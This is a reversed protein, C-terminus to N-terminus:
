SICAVLITTGFWGGYVRVARTLRGMGEEDEGYHCTVRFTMDQTLEFSRKAVDMDCPLSPDRAFKETIKDFPYTITNSGSLM